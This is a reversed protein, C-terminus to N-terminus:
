QTRMARPKMYAALPAPPTAQSYVDVYGDGEKRATNTRKARPNRAWSWLQVITPAIAPSNVSLAKSCPRLKIINLWSILERTMGMQQNTGTTAKTILRLRLGAPQHRLTM